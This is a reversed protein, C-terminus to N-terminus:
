NKKSDTQNIEANDQERSLLLSGVRKGEMTLVTMRAGEVHLVDNIEPIRGLSHMVYGS